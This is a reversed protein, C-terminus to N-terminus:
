LIDAFKREVNKFYLLGTFFLAFTVSMATMLIPLTLVGTGLLCWRFGEVIGTLPNLTYLLRWKEPIISTAYVIPTSYMWFQIIFPMAHQFDRYQVNLATLWLSVGVGLIVTLGLWFPLTVIKWDPSVHYYVMLIGLVILSVAFDVIVALVCALPILIRPFYIKTILGTNNLLSNGARQIAGSFLNWVLLGCIVFLVYPKGDSPMKAFHGFIISFIMGASLPQLVVWIVGLITQKYRLKLDRIALMWAVDRYEWLEKLDFNALGTRKQIIIKRSM